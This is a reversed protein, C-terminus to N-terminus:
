LAKLAAGHANDLFAGVALWFLYFLRVNLQNCHMCAGRSWFGYRAKHWGGMVAARALQCPGDPWCWAM